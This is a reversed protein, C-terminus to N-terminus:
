RPLVHARRPVYLGLLLSLVCLVLVPYNGLRAYPTLGSYPTVTGKLVEPVFQRTRAAIRGDPAILASVGNNTARMMWRGAELSRM